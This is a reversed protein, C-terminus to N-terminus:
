KEKQLYWTVTEQIGEEFFVKAEWHLEEKIKSVDIAYRRDHGKRDEVYTILKNYIYEEQTSKALVSKIKKILFYILDINKWENNGGINYVEGDKGRHIIKEIADCHDRVHLWDRVNLGDGYVPISEKRLLRTIVLPILKEVYQYPGYNNSCRSITIPLQYTSYYAQCLLDASAKSASYPSRPNLPTQETFYGEEISGYVEDTSIQHFRRVGYKLSADLLVQTGLVNTKLFVQPSIISRDVHTEAAFNIVYDPKYTRFIREINESDCIDIQEFIYCSKEILASSISELNPLNAAYTLKDVNIIQIEDHFKNFMYHIFNAGIFGAGGTVLYIM